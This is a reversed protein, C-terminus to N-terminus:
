VGNYGHSMGSIRAHLGASIKDQTKTHGHVLVVNENVKKGM